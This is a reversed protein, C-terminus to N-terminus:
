AHAYEFEGQLLEDGISRVQLSRLCSCPTYNKVHHVLQRRAIGKEDWYYWEETSYSKVKQQLYAYLKDLINQNVDFGARKAETLFHGAYATGWWSEYDGGPWYSIAGNYLQMGELKKIAQTV